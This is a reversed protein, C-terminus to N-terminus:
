GNIDGEFLSDVMWSAPLTLAATAPKLRKATVNQFRRSVAVLTEESIEPADLYASIQDEVGQMFSQEAIAKTLMLGRQYQADSVRTLATQMEPDDLREKARPQPQNNAANAKAEAVRREAETM